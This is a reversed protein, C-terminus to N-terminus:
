GIVEARYIKRPDGDLSARTHIWVKGGYQIVVPPWDGALNLIELFDDPSVTVVESM